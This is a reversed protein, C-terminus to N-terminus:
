SIIKCITYDIIFVSRGIGSFCISLYILLCILSTSITNAKIINFMDWISTYRWMGRYLTFLRFFFIKILIILVFNEITLLKLVVNPILFDFRFLVSLFFSIVILSIDTILLLLFNRNVLRKLYDMKIKNLLSSIHHPM